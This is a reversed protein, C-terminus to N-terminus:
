DWPLPSYGLSEMDELIDDRICGENGSLYFETYTEGVGRIKSVLGGAYRWSCGYAEDYLQSYHRWRMNCLAGYFARAYDYDKLKESLHLIDREFHVRTRAM